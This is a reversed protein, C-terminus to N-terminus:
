TNTERTPTPWPLQATLIYGNDSTPHHDLKGGVLDVREALGLLGYGSSPPPTPRIPIDTVPSNSVTVHLQNGATGELTIHIHAGPAHRTANILGEQVIRYATRGIADPPTGSVATTLAVHLGSARADAVMEPIKHLSLRTLESHPPGARLVGLVDRLEELAQHSGDAIRHLLIQNEHAPLSTHHNLVGAQLAILSIRHALVDHMERAIYNRELAQAQATRAKEEREASQARERLTQLEVRRAGLAVGAAVAVGAALPPVALEYLSTPTGPPGQVPYSGIRFHSTVVYSLAVAAIGMTRRRTSISALALLGAGTALTSATSAIAVPLTIALPYRRRWVLATLCGLAVVPDGLLYWMGRDTSPWKMVVGIYLWVWLGV